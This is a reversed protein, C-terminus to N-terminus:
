EVAGALFMEELQELKHKVSGDIVTDEIRVTMGGKLSEDLKIQMQVKKGTKSELAEQLAKRQTEKIQRATYVDIEIIGAYENYKKLFAEVIQDLIQIRGKRVLQDLLLRTLEQVKDGFLMKLAGAKDDYKIVPSRLFVLLENSGDLTNKILQIDGLIEQVEDREAALELVASAYRRAAKTIFM